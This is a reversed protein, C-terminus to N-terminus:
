PALQYTCAVVIHYWDVFSEAFWTLCQQDKLQYLHQYAINLVFSSRFSYAILNKINGHEDIDESESGSKQDSHSRSIPLLRIRRRRRKGNKSNGRSSKTECTAEKTEENTM